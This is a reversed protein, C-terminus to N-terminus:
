EGSTIARLEDFSQRVFQPLNQQSEDSAWREFAIKFVAIGVEATLSATPDSVGRQHLVDTLAV